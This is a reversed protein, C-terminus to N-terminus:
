VINAGKLGGFVVGVVVMLFIILCCMLCCMRQSWSLLNPTLSRDVTLSPPLSQLNCLFWSMRVCVCVCVYVCM